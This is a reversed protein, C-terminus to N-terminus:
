HCVDLNKLITKSIPLMEGCGPLLARAEPNRMVNEISAKKGRGYFGCNNDCGTMVHLQIIVKAMDSHFLTQCNIYSNKRKYLDGMSRHVM